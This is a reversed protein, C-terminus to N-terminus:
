NGLGAPRAVTAGLFSGHLTWKDDKGVDCVWGNELAKHWGRLLAPQRNHQDSIVSLFVTAQKGTRRKRRVPQLHDFAIDKVRQRNYFREIALTQARKGHKGVAVMQLGRCGHHGFRELAGAFVPPQAM